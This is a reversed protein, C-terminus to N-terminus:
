RSCHRHKATLALLTLPMIKMAADEQADTHLLHRGPNKDPFVPVTETRYGQPM